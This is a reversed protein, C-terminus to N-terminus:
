DEKYVETYIIDIVINKVKALNAADTRIQPTFTTTADLVQLAPSISNYRDTYTNSNTTQFLAAIVSSNIGVDYHSASSIQNILSSIYSTGLNSGVMKVVFFSDNSTSSNTLECKISIGIIMSDVPATFTLTTVDQYTTEGTTTETAYSLQQRHLTVAGFTDNNDAAYLIDGDSWDSGGLDVTKVAM